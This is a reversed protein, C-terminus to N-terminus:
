QRGEGRKEGRGREKPILQQQHVHLIGVSHDELDIGFDTCRLMALQVQHGRSRKM